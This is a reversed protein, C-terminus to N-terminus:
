PSDELKLAEFDRMDFLRINGKDDSSVMTNSHKIYEVRLLRTSVFTKELLVDTTDIDYIRIVSHSKGSVESHFCFCVM